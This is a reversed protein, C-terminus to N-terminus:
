LTKKKKKPAGRTGSFAMSFTGNKFTRDVCLRSWDRRKQVVHAKEQINGLMPQVSFRFWSFRNTSDHWVFRKLLETVSKKKQDIRDYLM